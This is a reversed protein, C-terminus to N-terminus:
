VEKMIYGTDEDIMDLMIRGFTEDFQTGLGCEIQERVREQPMIDRYSRNSTMADYADAVAIIRAETPIEEGKLGDPYGRGDIREHHWHAGTALGPMERIKELIRAGTAPHEKILGFEEDTLKGQKNIVADPVGIKGVDHLLGMMFIENQEKECMGARRAIERSYKAVRGSHGNTYTDKADIAEALTQVVHFSLGENERTKKEIEDELNHQFHILEDTMVSFFHSVRYSLPIEGRQAPLATNGVYVRDDKCCEGGEKIGVAVFASALVGGKGGKYAIEYNGHCYILEPNKERYYDWELHGEQRLFNMRNGCATIFVADPAFAAMRESGKKSAGLIEERTSYSFRLKENERITGAISLSGDKSDIPIACIDVDDRRVMLPFECVNMIFNEDWEVGLYKRYIDIAPMGDILQINTEGIAPSEGLTIEMERGIPEWGLIYDMKIYIHEGSIILVVFGSTVIDGSIAFGDEFRGTYHMAMAGFVPVDSSIAELFRTANIRRGVPYLAIGKVDPIEALLSNLKLVAEEEEGPAAPLQLTHFAGHTSLILNIRVEHGEFYGETIGTRKVEPIQEDWYDLIPMIDSATFATVFIFAAADAHPIEDLLLRIKEIGEIANEISKYTFNFQKM